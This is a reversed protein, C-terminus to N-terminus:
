TNLVQAYVANFGTSTDFYENYVINNRVAYLHSLGFLPVNFANSYHISAAEFYLDARRESDFEQGAQSILSQFESFEGLFDDDANAHSYPSGITTILAYSFAPGLPAGATTSGQNFIYPNLLTHNRAESLANGFDAFDVEVEFGVDNLMQQVAPMWLRDGTWLGTPLTVKFAFGVQGAEELLAQARDPDYNYPADLDGLPLPKGAPFPSYAREEDGTLLNAIISEADIAYNAAQRVRKDRWPNEGGTVPDVSANIPLEIAMVRVDPLVIM